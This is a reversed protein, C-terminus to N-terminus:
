GFRVDQPKNKHFNLKKAFTEIIQRKKIFVENKLMQNSTKIYIIGNRYETDENKLTVGIVEEVTKVVEEKYFDRSLKLNSFKALYNSITNWAM